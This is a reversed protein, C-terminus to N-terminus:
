VAEVAAAQEVRCIHRHQEQRLVLRAPEALLVLLGVGTQNCAPFPVQELRQLAAAELIAAPPLSRILHQIGALLDATAM